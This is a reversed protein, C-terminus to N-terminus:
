AAYKFDKDNIVDTGIIEAMFDCRVYHSMNSAAFIEEIARNFEDEADPHRLFGHIVVQAERSYAKDDHSFIVSISVSWKLKRMSTIEYLKHLNRKMMLRKGKVRHNTSTRTVEPKEGLPDLMSWLFQCGILIANNHKQRNFPKKRNKPQKM